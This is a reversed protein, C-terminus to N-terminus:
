LFPVSEVGVDECVSKWRERFSSTGSRCDEEGGSKERVFNDVGLVAFMSEESPIKVGDQAYTPGRVKM